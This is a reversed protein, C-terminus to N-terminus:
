RAREGLLMALLVCRGYLRFPGDDLRPRRARRPGGVGMVSALAMAGEEVFLIRRRDRGEGLPQHGACRALRARAVGADEVVDIKREGAGIGVLLVEVAAAERREVGIAAVRLLGNTSRLGLWCYS